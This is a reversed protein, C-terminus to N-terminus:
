AELELVLNWSFLRNGRQPLDYGYQDTFYIDFGYLPETSNRAFALYTEPIYQIREGIAPKQLPIRCLINSQNGTSISRMKQNKLIEASVVDVWHTCVFGIPGFTHNSLKNLLAPTVGWMASGYAYFKCDAVVAFPTTAEIKISGSVPSASATIGYPSGGAAFQANMELVLSAIDVYNGEAFTFSAESNDLFQVVLNNNESNVNDSIWTFNCAVLRVRRFGTGLNQKPIVNYSTGGDYEADVSSVYVKSQVPQISTVYQPERASAERIYIMPDVPKMVVAQPQSVQPLQPQM